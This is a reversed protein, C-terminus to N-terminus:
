PQMGGNSVGTRARLEQVRAEVEALKQRYTALYRESGAQDGLRAAALSLQYYARTSDPEAQVVRQLADRAQAFQARKMLVLGLVLNATPQDAARGLVRQARQVAAELEGLGEEAEALAAQAELSDPEAALSRLLYPKAQEYLKRSNLALGLAVLTLARGPELQEARLLSECAAPMDGAQMRAVGLLYHYQAEEPAFRTLAELALTAPLPRHARLAAQAWAFLLTESNPALTRAAELSLLAAQSNGDAAQAHARQLYARVSAQTGAAAPACPAWTLAALLVPLGAKM